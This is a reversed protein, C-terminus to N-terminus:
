SRGAQMELAKRIVSYFKEGDGWMRWCKKIMEDTPETSLRAREWKIVERAVRPFGSGGGDKGHYWRMIQDLDPTEPEPEPPMLDSSSEYGEGFVFGWDTWDQSIWIGPQSKIAGHIPFKQGEHIAYIIAEHGDRTKYTKGAEFTM